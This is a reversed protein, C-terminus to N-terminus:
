QNIVVTDKIDIANTIYQVAGEVNAGENYYITLISEGDKVKDGIKKNFVLGASHDVYEDKKKRGGKLEVM